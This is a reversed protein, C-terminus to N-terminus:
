GAPQSAPQTHPSPGGCGAREGEHLDDWSPGFYPVLGTVEGDWEYDYAEDGLGGNIEEQVPPTPMM